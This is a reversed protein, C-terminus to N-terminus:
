KLHKRWEKRKEQHEAKIKEWKTVQDPTLIEKIRNSSEEHMVRYKEHQEKLVVDVKSAQDPTLQLEKSIWELKHSQPTGMEDDTPLALAAVSFVFLSASFFTKLYM